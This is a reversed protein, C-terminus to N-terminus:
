AAEVTGDNVGKKRRLKKPWGAFFKSLELIQNEYPAPKSKGLPADKSMRYFTLNAMREGDALSVNVQHGRVEFILPTGKTNDSRRRGFLPHVFGAYHIRMEGITEDSARCYVAIGPPVCIREKSRLIYFSESEIKLRGNDEAPKLKWYTTPNASGRTQKTSVVKKGKTSESVWLEVPPRGDPGKVSEACFAAASVGGIKTNSIDVTLSGEHNTPTAYVARFLEEGKIEVDEPRGYFLRLQSLSIGSKVLVAFTIPTIELYMDGEGREFCSPAFSEYTDMGDVILRALVDVRGVSSKATAQGHIGMEGLRKGLKERLKFVYTNKADLRIPEGAQITLKEALDSRDLFVRYPDEHSPKVSGSLMRYAETTLHLDISSEDIVGPELPANLSFAKRDCLEKMQDRNLVGPIWDDWPEHM